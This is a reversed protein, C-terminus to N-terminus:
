HPSYTRIKLCYQFLDNLNRYEDSNLNLLISHNREKSIQFDIDRTPVSFKFNDTCHQPELFHMQIFFFILEPVFCELRTLTSQLYLSNKELLSCRNSNRWYKFELFRTIEAITGLYPKRMLYHAKNYYQQITPSCFLMTFLTHRSSRLSSLALLPGTSVKFQSM